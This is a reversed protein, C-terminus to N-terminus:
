PYLTNRSCSTSSTKEGKGDHTAGRRNTGTAADSTRTSISFRLFGWSRGGARAGVRFGPGLETTSTRLSGSKVSFSTFPGIHGNEGRLHHTEKINYFKACTKNHTNPLVAAQRSLLLHFNIIGIKALLNSSQERSNTKQLLPREEGRREWVQM